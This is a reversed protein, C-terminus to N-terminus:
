EYMKGTTLNSKDMGIDLFDGLQHKQHAVHGDTFIININMNHPFSMCAAAHGSLVRAPYNFYPVAGSLVEVAGPGGVSSVELFMATRATNRIVMLSKAPVSPHSFFEANPIYNSKFHAALDCSPCQLISGTMTKLNLNSISVIAIDKPSLYPGFWLYWPFEYTFVVDRYVNPMYLRNDDAYLSAVVGLQKLNNACAIRRAEERAKGLAPFLLASLMAIIAIVVLLEVLTFFRSRM